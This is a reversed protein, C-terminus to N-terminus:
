SEPMMSNLEAELRDFNEENSTTIISRVKECEETSDFIMKFTFRTQGNEEDFYAIAKFTHGTLHDFVIKENPIIETFRSQNHYDTGDPGHMIFDWLGGPVPEFTIFTNRFDRPGWWAALHQAETWAKYLLSKPANFIRSSVIENQSM